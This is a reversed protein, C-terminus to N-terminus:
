TNLIMEYLSAHLEKYSSTFTRFHYVTKGELAVFMKKSGINITDNFGGLLYNNKYEDIAIARVSAGSNPSSGFSQIKEAWLHSQSFVNFSSIIIILLNYYGKYKKM